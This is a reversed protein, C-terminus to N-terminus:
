GQLVGLRNIDFAKVDWEFWVSLYIRRALDSGQTHRLSMSRAIM